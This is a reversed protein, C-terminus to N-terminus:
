PGETHAQGTGGGVGVDQMRDGDAEENELITLSPPCALPLLIFISYKHLAYRTFAVGYWVARPAKRKKNRSGYDHVYCTTGLALHM